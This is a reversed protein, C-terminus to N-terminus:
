RGGSLVHTAPCRLQEADMTALGRMWPAMRDADISITGDARIEGVDNGKSSLAVTCKNLRGNARVVLSNGRAAYCIFPATGEAEAAKAANGGSEDAGVDSVRSLSNRVRDYFNSFHDSAEDYVAPHNPDRGGWNGVKKLLVQFRDDSCSANIREALRLVGEENGPMLHVRLLMSFDRSSQAASLINSWIRDFTPGGNRKPRSRDHADGWGDLSVQLQTCHYGVLEEMMADDLLFGNTTMGSTLRLVGQDHLQKGLASIQRVARMNLLPEGGFYNLHLHKLGAARRRILAMVGDVVGQPMRGIAFDEYCYTCRFNCQETPLLILELTSNSLGTSRVNWERQRRLADANPSAASVDLVPAALSTM